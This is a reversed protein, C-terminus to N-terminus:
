KKNLYDTATLAAKAGESAAIIIQKYSVNTVDGAAFIGPISTENKKNVLIQKKSNMDLIDFPKSNPVNGIEIFLGDINIEVNKDSEKNLTIVKQVRKDGVIEKIKHQLLIDVNSISKLKDILVKDAKLTSRQIITVHNAIKSLDIAAEVASNGGGAIAVDKDKFLPGDCIACYTVGKSYFEKEGKVNLKRPSGGTAVILAKSNIEKKNSLIVKKLDGNEISMVSKNNHIDIENSEIHDKFKNALKEGKIREFGLYNEVWTTDKVQGGEKDGIVIIDLGKRKAYLASTLGAPGTGIIALDYTKNYNIKNNKSVNLDLNLSM